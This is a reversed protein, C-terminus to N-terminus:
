QKMMAIAAIEDESSIFQRHQRQKVRKSVTDLQKKGLFFFNPKKIQNKFMLAYYFRTAVSTKSNRIRDGLCKKM